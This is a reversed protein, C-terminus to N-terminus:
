NYKMVGFNYLKMANQYYQSFRKKLKKFKKPKFKRIYINIKIMLITM